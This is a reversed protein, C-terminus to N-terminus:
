PNCTLNRSNIFCQVKVGPGRPLAWPVCNVEAEARALGCELRCSPFIHVSHNLLTIMFTAIMPRALSGTLVGTSLQSIHTSFNLTSMPSFHFGIEAGKKKSPDLFTQLGQSQTPQMTPLLVRMPCSADVLPRLCLPWLPTAQLWWRLWRLNHTNCVSWRIWRWYQAEKM